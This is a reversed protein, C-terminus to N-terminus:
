LHCYILLSHHNGPVTGLTYLLPLSHTFSPSARYNAKWVTLAPVANVIIDRVFYLRHQTLLMDSSIDDWPAMTSQFLNLQTLYM